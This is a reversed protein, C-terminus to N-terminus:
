FILAASYGKFKKVILEDHEFQALKKLEWSDAQGTKALYRNKLSNHVSVMVKRGRMEPGYSAKFGIRWFCIGLLLIIFRRSINFVAPHM